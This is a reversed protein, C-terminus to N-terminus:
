DRGSASSPPSSSSASSSSSSSPPSPTRLTTSARATAPPGSESAGTGRATPSRRAVFSRRPQVPGVGYLTLFQQLAQAARARVQAPTPEAMVGIVRRIQWDGLLLAVYTEAAAQLEGEDVVAIQGEAVLRQLLESLLPLVAERGAQAVAAGLTGGDDVDAAAARNLRIARDSSVLGLLLPGLAELVALAGGEGASLGLLLERVEAANDAVLSRFLAQKSGYWQYLTENSAHARKAIALLSASRYGVEALVDYAAAEIARRREAQRPSDERLDTDAGAAPSQADAGTDPTESSPTM